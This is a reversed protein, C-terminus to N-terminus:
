EGTRVGDAEHISHNSDHDSGQGNIMPAPMVVPDPSLPHSPSEVPIHGPLM